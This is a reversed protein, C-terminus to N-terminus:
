IFFVRHSKTRLRVRGVSRGDNTKTTLALKLCCLPITHDACRIWVATYRPKKSRIFSNWISYFLPFEQGASHIDASSVEQRNGSLPHVRPEHLVNFISYVPLVHLVVSPYSYSLPALGNELPWWDCLRLLFVYSKLFRWYENHHECYGGVSEYGSASLDLRYRLM